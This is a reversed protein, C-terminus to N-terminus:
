RGPAKPSSRNPPAAPGGSPNSAATSGASPSVTRAAQPRQSGQEAPGPSSARPPKTTYQDALAGRLSLVEQTRREIEDGMLGLRFAFRDADPGGLDRWWDASAHLAAVARDLLGDLPAAVEDLAHVVDRTHRAHDTVYSALHDLGYLQPGTKHHARPDGTLLEDPCQVEFGEFLLADVARTVACQQEHADTMGLPLRYFRGAPEDIRLFGARFLCAWAGEENLIPRPDPRQPVGLADLRQDVASLLAPISGAHAHDPGTTQSDWWMERFQGNEDVTMALWAGLPQEEYPEYPPSVLLDLGDPLTASIYDVSGKGDLIYPLGRSALAATIRPVWGMTQEHPDAPLPLRPGDIRATVLGGERAFTVTTQEL